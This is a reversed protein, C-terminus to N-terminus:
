WDASFMGFILKNQKKLDLLEQLTSVNLINKHPVIEAREVIKAPQSPTPPHDFDFINVQCTLAILILIAKM